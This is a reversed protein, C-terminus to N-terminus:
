TFNWGCVLSEKFTRWQWSVFMHYLSLSFEARWFHFLYMCIQPIGGIWIFEESAIISLHPMSIALVLYLCPLSASKVYSCSTVSVTYDDMTTILCRPILACITTEIIWVRSTIRGMISLLSPFFQGSQFIMPKKGNMRQSEPGNISSDLILSRGIQFVDEMSLPAWMDFEQIVSCPEQIQIYLIFLWAINYLLCTRLYTKKMKVLNSFQCIHDLFIAM